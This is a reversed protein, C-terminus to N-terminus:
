KYLAYRINDIKIYDRVSFLYNRNQLHKRNHEHSAFFINVIRNSCYYIIINGHKRYATLFLFMDDKLEKSLRSYSINNKKIALLAVDFDNKLRDSCSEIIKYHNSFTFGYYKDYVKTKLLLLIFEKNDLLNEDLEKLIDFGDKKIINFCKDSYWTLLKNRLRLSLYKYYCINNKLLFNSVSEVDQLKRFPLSIYTQEKVFTLNKLKFYVVHNTHNSYSELNSLNFEYLEKITNNKSLQYTETNDRKFILNCYRFKLSKKNYQINIINNIKEM